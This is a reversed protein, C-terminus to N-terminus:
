SPVLLVLQDKYDLLALDSVGLNQAKKLLRTKRWNSKMRKKFVLLM